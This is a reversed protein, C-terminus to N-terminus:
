NQNNFMTWWSGQGLSWNITNSLTGLSSQITIGGSSDIWTANTNTVSQTAAPNLNFFASSTTNSTITIKSGSAGTLILSSNVTYTLSSKITLTRGATNCLLNAVTFGSTGTFVVNSSSALTLTGNINLLSNLTITGTKIIVNNWNIGTSSLISSGLINLTSSTVTVTGTTYTLTGTSYYVNGSITLTGSTNVTLNNKIAGAATWTGTGNYIINTTGTLASVSNSSITINGGLYLTNGNFISSAGIVVSFTGNCILDSALTVTANAVAINHWNIGSVNNLTCSSVIALTKYSSFIVTGAIYNLTGGGYSLWAINVTGTANIDLDNRIGGAYANDVNITQSTSTNFIIKTTGNFVRHNSLTISGGIYFNFGNFTIVGSNAHIISGISVLDSLLTITSNNTTFTIANWTIGSTNLTTSAAITLTSGTTTVTGATYTLTGTSYSVSGSVTITGATNITLNNKIAATGSWTGTGNINFLTTGSCVGNTSTSISGGINFTSGNFTTSNQNTFTGTCNLNSVLTIVGGAGGVGTTINNWTVSNVDLSMITNGINLTSGTTTVSGTVYTINKDTSVTGSITVTTTTDFFINNRIRGAGSITGSKIYFDSTGATVNALVSLGGMSCNAGNFTLGTAAQVTLLGSCEFADAFTIISAGGFNVNNPFVKGNSTVTSTAGIILGASGTITMASVLTLNGNVTLATTMTLTDTYNTFDIGAIAFGINVTLQGSTATFDITDASTPAVGGVYTAGANINGGGNAVTFVAM